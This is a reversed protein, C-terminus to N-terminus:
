NNKKQFTKYVQDDNRPGVVSIEIVTDTPKYIARFEGITIRFYGPHGSLHNCDAPRPDNSLAFLKKSVQKYQKAELGELYKYADRSLQLPTM